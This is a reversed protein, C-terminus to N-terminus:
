FTGIKKKYFIPNLGDLGLSKNSEMQFLANTLEVISFHALLDINDDYFTCPLIYNVIPDCDDNDISFFM